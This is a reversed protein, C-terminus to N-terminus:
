IHLLTIDLFFWHIGWNLFYKIALWWGLKWRAAVKRSTSPRAKVCVAASQDPDQNSFAPTDTATGWFLLIFKGGRGKGFSRETARSATQCCEVWLVVDKLIPTLGKLGQREKHVLNIGYELDKNDNWGDERCRWWSCFGGWSVVKKAGGYSASRMRELKIRLDCGNLGQDYDEQQKWGMPLSKAVSDQVGWLGAHPSSGAKGLSRNINTNQGRGMLWPLFCKRLSM